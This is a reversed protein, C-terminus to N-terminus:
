NRAWDGTPSPQLTTLPKTSPPPVGGIVTHLRRCHQTPQDARM